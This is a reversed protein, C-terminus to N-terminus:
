KADKKVRYQACIRDLRPDKDGSASKCAANLLMNAKKITGAARYLNALVFLSTSTNKDKLSSEMIEIARLVAERDSQKFQLVITGFAVSLFSKAHEIKFPDENKSSDLQMLASDLLFLAEDYKKQAVKIMALQYAAIHNGANYSLSFYHQAKQINRPIVGEKVKFETLYAIGLFYAYPNVQGLRIPMQMASIFDRYDAMTKIDRQRPQEEAGSFVPEVALISSLLFAVALFYRM